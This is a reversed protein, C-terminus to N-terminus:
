VNCSIVFIVATIHVIGLSEVIINDMELNAGEEGGGMNVPDTSNTLRPRDASRIKWSESQNTPTQGLHAFESCSVLNV